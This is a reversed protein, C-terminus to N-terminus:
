SFVSLSQHLDLDLCNFRQTLVTVQPVQLISILQWRWQVEVSSFIGIFPLYM